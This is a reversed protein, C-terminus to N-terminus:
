MCTHVERTIYQASSTLDILGFDVADVLATQRFLMADHLLSAVYKNCRGGVELIM